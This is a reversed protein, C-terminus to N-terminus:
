FYRAQRVLYQSSDRFYESADRRWLCIVAGLAVLWNLLMLIATLGVPHDPPLILLVALTRLAFLATALIRAWSRGVASYRAVWLCIGAGILGYAVSLLIENVALGHAQSATFGRAEFVRIDSGIRSVAIVVGLIALGANAYLFQVAVAVSRPRLLRETLWSVGASQPLYTM